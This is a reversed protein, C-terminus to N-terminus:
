TYMEHAKRETNERKITAKFFVSYYTIITNRKKRKNYYQTKVEATMEEKNEKERARSKKLRVWIVIGRWSLFTICLLM